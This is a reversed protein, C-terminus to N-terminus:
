DLEEKMKFPDLAYLIHHSFLHFLNNPGLKLKVPDPQAYIGGLNHGSSIPHSLANQQILMMAQRDFDLYVHCSFQIEQIFLLISVPAHYSM